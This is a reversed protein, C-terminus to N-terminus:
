IHILSLEPLAALQRNLHQEAIGFSHKVMGMEETDTRKACATILIGIAFLLLGKVKM